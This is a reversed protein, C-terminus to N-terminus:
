SHLDCHVIGVKHAENLGSVLAHMIHLMNDIFGKIRALEHPQPIYDM